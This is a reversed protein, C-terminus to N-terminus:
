FRLIPFRDLKEFRERCNAKPDKLGKRMYILDRKRRVQGKQSQVIEDSGIQEFQLDGEDRGQLLLEDLVGKRILVLSTGKSDNRFSPLWADMFCADASESFVDMCFNCANLRFFGNKGLYFPLSHYPIEKGPGKNDTGQFRYNSAPGRDSKRRYEINLINERDVGSKALLIETYFTNQYMGCALGFVFPIREMLKESNRIAMCLCPVGVIAWRERKNSAIDKIIGSIEVPHYVSGSSSRLEYVSSVAIFNFYGKDYTEAFQVVAVRSVMEKKLLFELCYTAIGGSASVKRLHEDKRFGLISRV